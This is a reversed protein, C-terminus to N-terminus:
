INNLNNNIVSTASTAAKTKKLVHLYVGETTLISSHGLTRSVDRIPLGMDDCLATYAHRLKHPSVEHGCYKRTYNRVVGILGAPTIEEWKGNNSRGFIITSSNGNYLFKERKIYEKLTNQALEPFPVFREKDGKGHAIRILGNEWDLDGLRMMRLESNRAGTLLLLTIIAQNRAKTKTMKSCDVGFLLSKIEKLSLLNYILDKKEPVEKDDVPNTTEVGMRIAWNYFNHLNLLYTRISNPKVGQETLHQRWRVIVLPTIEEGDALYREFLKLRNAYLTISNTSKNSSPLTSIYEKTYKIFETKNMNAELIILLSM